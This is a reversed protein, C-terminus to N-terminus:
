SMELGRAEGQKPRGQLGLRHILGNQGRTQDPAEGVDERVPLAGRGPADVQLADFGDQIAVLCMAIEGRMGPCGPGRHSVQVKQVQRQLREGVVRSERLGLSDSRGSPRSNFFCRVCCHFFVPDESGFYIPEEAVALLQQMDDLCDVLQSTRTVLSRRGVLVLGINEQSLEIGHDVAIRLSWWTYGDVCRQRWFGVKLELEAVSGELLCGRYIEASSEVM